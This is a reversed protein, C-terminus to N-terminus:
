ASPPADSILGSTGDSICSGASCPLTALSAPAYRGIRRENGPSLVAFRRMGHARAPALGRTRDALDCAFHPRM